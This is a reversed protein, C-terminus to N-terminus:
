SGGTVLSADVRAKITKVAQRRPLPASARDPYGPVM